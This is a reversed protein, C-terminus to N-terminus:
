RPANTTAPVGNTSVVGPPSNSEKAMRERENIVFSVREKLVNHVENTVARMLARAEDFRGANLKFRAMHIFVGEREVDTTALKLANTWAALADDTRVPRIGYYTKAVEEALSFNTPELKLAKEYLGLAKNYVEQETIKYYDMAAVRFLFVVDGFNRYYLPQNPDIAVAKEYYALAKDTPGVHGYHTALNNLIAANEPDLERAKELQEIEGDEDRLGGLFSGYAIRVGVHSPHREIFDKYGQRIPELRKLIRENLERAPVAQGAGRAQNELIWDDVEKHAVDDAEMLKKFERDVPDDTDPVTIPVGAREIVLNTRPSPTNAQSSMLNTTAGNAAISAGM